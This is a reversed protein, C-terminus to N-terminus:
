TNDNIFLINEQLAVGNDADNQRLCVSDSTGYIKITNVIEAHTSISVGGRVEEIYWCWDSTRVCIFGAVTTTYM